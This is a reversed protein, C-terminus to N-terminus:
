SLTKVEGKIAWDLPINLVGTVQVFVTFSAGAAVAANANNLSAGGIQVGKSSSVVPAGGNFRTAVASVLFKTGAGTSPARAVIVLEISTVSNDPIAFETLNLTESSVTSIDKVYPETTTIPM